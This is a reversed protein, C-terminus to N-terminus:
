TTCADNGPIMDTTPSSTEPLAIHQKRSSFLTLVEEIKKILQDIRPDDTGKKQVLIEDTRRSTTFSDLSLQRTTSTSDGSVLGSGEFSVSSNTEAPELALTQPCGSFTNNKLM